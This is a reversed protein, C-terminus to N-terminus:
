KRSASHAQGNRSPRSVNSHCECRVVPTVAFISLYMPRTLSFCVPTLLKNTLLCTNAPLYTRLYTPPYLYLYLCIAPTLLPSLLSLTNFGVRDSGVSEAYRPLSLTPLGYTKEKRANTIRKARSDTRWKQYLCLSTRISSRPSLTPLNCPWTYLSLSLLSGNTNDL